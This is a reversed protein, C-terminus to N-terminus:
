SISFRVAHSFVYQLTAKMHITMQYALIEAKEERKQHNQKTVGMEAM